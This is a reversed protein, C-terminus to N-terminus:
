GAVVFFDDYKQNELSNIQLDGCTIIICFFFLRFIDETEEYIEKKANIDIEKSPLGTQAWYVTTSKWARYQPAVSIVWYFKHIFWNTHLAEIQM